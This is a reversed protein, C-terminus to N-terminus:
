KREQSSKLFEIFHRSDALDFEGIVRTEPDYVRPLTIPQQQRRNFEAIAQEIREGTFIIRGREWALAVTVDVPRPTLPTWLNVQVQQGADARVYDVSPVQGSRALGRSVSVTGEAVVVNVDDGDCRVAFKTGLAQVTTLGCEVVFPRYSDKTVDYSAEGSSQTIIRRQRDFRAKIQTRPGLRAVSGDDLSVTRWEGAATQYSGQYYLWPGAIMVTALFTVSAVTKAHKRLRRSRRLLTSSVSLGLRWLFSNESM